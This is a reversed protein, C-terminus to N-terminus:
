RKSQSTLRDAMRRAERTISEPYGRLELLHIANRGTTPGAQIRYDFGPRGDVIQESFHYMDYSDSLLEQLELDHTTVM